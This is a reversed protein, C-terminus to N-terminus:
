GKEHNVGVDAVGQRRLAERIATRCVGLEQAIEAMTSGNAYMSAATSEQHTTM